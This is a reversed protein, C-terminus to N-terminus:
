TKAQVDKITAIPEDITYDGEPAIHEVTYEGQMSFPVFIKHLFLKEPVSGLISAGTVTDGKEVM